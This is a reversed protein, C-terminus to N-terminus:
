RKYYDYNLFSQSKVIKYELFLTVKHGAQFGSSVGTSGVPVLYEGLDLLLPLPLDGDEEAPIGGQGPIQLLLAVLESESKLFFNKLSLVNYDKKDLFELNIYKTILFVCKINKKVNCTRFLM